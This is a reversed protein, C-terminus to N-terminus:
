PSTREPASLKTLDITLAARPTKPVMREVILPRKALKKADIIEMDAVIPMQARGMTANMITLRMTATNRNILVIRARKHDMKGNIKLIM